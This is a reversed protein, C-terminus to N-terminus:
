FRTPLLSLHGPGALVIMINMAVLMLEYHWGMNDKGWYGTHWAFAKKYIAGAMIAILGLAAARALIGAILGLSGAIEAVGIFVMFSPSIGNLRARSVPDRLSSIGSPLFESALMLRLALAGVDYAPM